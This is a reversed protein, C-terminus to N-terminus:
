PVVVRCNTDTPPNCYDAGTGCDAGSAPDSFWVSTTGDTGYFRYCQNGSTLGTVTAVWFGGGATCHTMPTGATIWSNWIAPVNVATCAAGVATACNGDTVCFRWSTAAANVAVTSDVCEATHLCAGGGCADITCDDADATCPTGAARNSWATQSTAPNCEQCENTPNPDGAAYCATGIYCSGAAVTCTDTSEECGSHCAAGCPAAAHRSCTGDNECTDTGNCFLGDDCAAGANPTWTTTSEADDCIECENSPNPTGRAVCGAPTGLICYGTQLTCTPPSGEVCTECSRCPSGAHTCVLGTGLDQCTDDGNCAVGDDCPDDVDLATGPEVVCTRSTPECYLTGNCPDGDGHDTECTDAAPDCGCSPTGGGCVGATCTEDSTCPDGDDCTTGDMVDTWDTALADADCVECGNAPNPDGDDYCTDAIFCSGANIDCEDGAEDCTQCAACPDGPSQCAIPSGGCTDVGNCFVGDDCSDGPDMVTAADVICASTADNCILTGNCPDGDGHDAECTDTGEPDCECTNTGGGCAGAADCTEGTTCPNGDDCTAGTDIVNHCVRGGGAAVPDCTDLTCQDSDDCDTAAHCTYTCDHECGDGDTANGDDCEEDGTIEGDGCRAGETRCAASCGDGSTTNGDDCQEGTDVVTDGCAAAVCTTRCADALTDSNAEGEDCEEGTDPVADGCEVTWGAPREATECVGARCEQGGDCAQLLCADQLEVVVERIEGEVFQAVVWREIVRDGGLLGEVRFMVWDDYSSGATVGVTVPFSEETLDGFPQTRHFLETGTAGAFVTVRLSDLDAPVAVAAEKRIVLRVGTEGGCGAVLALLVLTGIIRKMM